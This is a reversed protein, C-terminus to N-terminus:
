IVAKAKHIRPFQGMIWLAMGESNQRAYLWLGPSGTHTYAKGKDLVSHRVLEEQVYPAKYM